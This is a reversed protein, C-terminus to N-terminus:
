GRGGRGPTSPLLAVIRDIVRESHELVERNPVRLV